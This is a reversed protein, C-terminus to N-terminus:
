HWPLVRCSGHCVVSLVKTPWPLNWTLVRFSIHCTGHYYGSHSMVSSLIDYYLSMWFLLLTNTPCINYKIPHYRSHVTAFALITGQILWPLHWTLVRFWSHCIDHYYGSDATVFALITGQILWQLHWSLVRFHHIASSPITGQSLWPLHWSLVKLSAHSSGESNKGISQEGNMRGTVSYLLGETTQVKTQIGLHDSWCWFTFLGTKGQQDTWQDDDCQCLWYESM